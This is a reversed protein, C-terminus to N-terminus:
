KIYKKEEEIGKNYLAINFQDMDIEWDPDKKHVERTREDIYSDLHMLPNDVYKFYVVPSFIKNGYSDYWGNHWEAMRPLGSFGDGDVTLVMVWDLDIRKKLMKYYESVPLWGRLKMYDDLLSAMGVSKADFTKEKM